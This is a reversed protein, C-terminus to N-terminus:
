GKRKAKMPMERGGRGAMLAKKLGSAKRSEPVAGFEAKMKEYLGAMDDGEGEVEMEISIEKEGDSGDTAAEVEGVERSEEAINNAGREQDMLDTAEEDSGPVEDELMMKALKKKLAMIAAKKAELNIM